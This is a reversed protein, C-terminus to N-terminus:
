ALIPSCLVVDMASAQRFGHSDRMLDTNVTALIAAKADVNYALQAYLQDVSGQYDLGSVAYVHQWPLEAAQAFSFGCLSLAAAVVVSFCKWMKM